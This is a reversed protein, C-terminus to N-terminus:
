LFYCRLCGNQITQPPPSHAGVGDIANWDIHKRPVGIKSSNWHSGKLEVYLLILRNRNSMEKIIMGKALFAVLLGDVEDVKLGQVCGVVADKIQSRICDVIAIIRLWGALTSRRLCDQNSRVDTHPM